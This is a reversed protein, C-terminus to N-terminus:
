FIKTHYLFRSQNKKRKTVIWANSLRVSPRVSLIRMALGHRYAAARYFCSQLTLLPCGSRKFYSLFGNPARCHSDFFYGGLVKQLLGIKEGQPSGFVCPTASFYLSFIANKKPPPAVKNVWVTHMRCMFSWDTETYCLADARQLVNVSYALINCAHYFTM